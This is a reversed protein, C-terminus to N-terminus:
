TLTGAKELDVFGDEQLCDDPFYIHELEGIILSTNNIALDIKERFRMGLKVQSEKVFPAPFNEKYEEKLGTAQFESVDTPYSASTQHAQKYIGEHLHNITYVNTALINEVTHREVTAPRMVFALLAPNAGLHVLSSFCALNSQGDTNVTGILCVSKFGGLSNILVARRRQEMGLLQEKDIYYQM